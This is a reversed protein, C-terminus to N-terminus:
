CITGGGVVYDGDYLVVAQGKTIARQPQDFVVKVRGDECLTATAAAEKARYRTKASVRIPQNPADYLIWNFDKAMLESSYLGDEPTLVVTNEEMCKRCVYLPSKLSLGLGRRQGTTYHIIGKHRGLVNGDEDVFDGPEYTKGTYAQIFAAYDKNPVFCIDQSDRKGANVFGYEEALARVQEKSAFQGLPFQTHALQQQTMSYLVYSQDKEKNEAKKLQWRKVDQAYEIRAYHGTVVVDFDLDRARQYLKDFKLYRNCDICPNPTEGHEYASVFRKIVQKEFDDQFNFVFFRMGLRYAVKRADEADDLTCCANERRSITEEGHHLKMTAGVCDYGNKCMIAAAVSSDVGGSMAILAKKM